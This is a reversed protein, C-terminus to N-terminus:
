VVTIVSTVAASRVQSPIVGGLTNVFYRITIIKQSGPCQIIWYLHGPKKIQLGSNNLTHNAIIASDSFVSLLKYRNAPIMAFCSFVM